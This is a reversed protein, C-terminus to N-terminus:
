YYGGGQTGRDDGDNLYSNNILAYIDADGNVTLEGNNGVRYITTPNELKEYSVSSNISVTSQAGYAPIAASTAALLTAFTIVKIRMQIKGKPKYLIDLFIAELDAEKSM